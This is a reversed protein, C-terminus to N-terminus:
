QPPWPQSLPSRHPGAPGPRYRWLKAPRPPDLHPPCVSRDDPPTLPTDVSSPTVTSVVGIGIQCRFVPLASQRHAARRGAIQRHIMQPRRAHQGITRSNDLTTKIIQREALQHQQTTRTLAASPGPGTRPRNPEKGGIRGCPKRYHDIKGVGGKQQIVAIIAMSRQTVPKRFGPFLNEKRNAPICTKPFGSSGRM